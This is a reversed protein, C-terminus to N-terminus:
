RAIAVPLPTYVSVFEKTNKYGLEAARSAVREYAAFTLIQSSLDMNDDELLQIKKSIKTATISDAASTNSIFITLGQSVIACVVLVIITIKLLSKMSYANSIHCKVRILQTMVM